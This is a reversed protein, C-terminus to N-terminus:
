VRARARENFLYVNPSPIAFRQSASCVLRATRINTTQWNSVVFLSPQLCVCQWTKYIYKYIIHNWILWRWPIGDSNQQHQQQWVRYWCLVSHACDNNNEIRWWRKGHLWCFFMQHTVRKIRKHWRAPIHWRWWRVVLALKFCFYFFFRQLNSFFDIILIYKNLLIPNQTNIAKTKSNQAFVDTYKQKM